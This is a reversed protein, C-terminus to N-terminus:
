AAALTRDSWASVARNRAACGKSCYLASDSSVPYELCFSCCPRSVLLRGSFRDSGAQAEEAPCSELWKDSWDASYAVKWAKTGWGTGCTLYSMSMPASVARDDDLRYKM